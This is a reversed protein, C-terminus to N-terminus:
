FHIGAFYILEGAGKDAKRESYNIVGNFNSGRRPLIKAIM